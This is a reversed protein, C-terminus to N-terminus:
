SFLENNLLPNNRLDEFKYEEGYQTKIKALEGFNGSPKGVKEQTAALGSGLGTVMDWLGSLTDKVGSMDVDLGDISNIVDEIEGKIPQLVNDDFDSLSDKVFQNTESLGDKLDSALGEVDDKIPTLYDDEFNSLGERFDKNTQSLGEKLDGALQKVDGKIPDLYTDEFGSLEDRFQQNQESFYEELRDVESQFAANTESLGTKLDGALGEVDEKIPNLYTDEFGSLENRFDKNTQSLAEEIVDIQGQFAKNTESLDNKIPQLYDKDFAALDDRVKQNTESLKQDIPKIYNKNFDSLTNDVNVLVKEIDEKLPQLNEDDFAALEARVNENIKSIDEKVPQLYDKDFAALDERVTQNLKSFDEKIPELAGQLVENQESLFTEVEDIVQRQVFQNAESAAQIAGAGITEVTSVVPQILERNVFSAGESLVDAVQKVFDIGEGEFEPVLESVGGGEKVFETVGSKVADEIDEGQLLKDSVKVIAEALPESNNFAWDGVENFVPIDSTVALNDEIFGTVLEVPSGMDTLDLGSSIAGLVDGDEVAKVLDVGDKVKNIIDAQAVVEKTANAASAAESVVDAYGDLGGLLASSLIDGTDGGTAATTIGSALGQSIATTVAQSGGSISAVATSNSLANSIAGGTLYAAGAMVAADAVMKVENPSNDWKSQEEYQNTESNYQYYQGSGYKDTIVNYGAPLGLLSNAEQRLFEATSFNDSLQKTYQTDLTQFADSALTNNIDDIKDKDSLFPQSRNVGGKDMSTALAMLEQKEPNTNGEVFLNSYDPLDEIQPALGTVINQMTQESSLAKQENQNAIAQAANGMVDFESTPKTQGPTVVDFGSFGGQGLIQSTEDVKQTAATEQLEKQYDSVGSPITIGLDIVPAVSQIAQEIPDPAIANQVAPSYKVEPTKTVAVTGAGELIDVEPTPTKTSVVDVPDVVAEKKPAYASFDFKSTDLTSGLGLLGTTPATVPKPAVVPKPEVTKTGGLNSFDIDSFDFNMGSFDLNFMSM